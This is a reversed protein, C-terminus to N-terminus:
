FGGPGSIALSRVSIASCVEFTPLINKSGEIATIGFFYGRM